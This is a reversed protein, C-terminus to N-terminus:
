AKKGHVSINPPRACLVLTLAVDYNGCVVVGIVVVVYVAYDIIM